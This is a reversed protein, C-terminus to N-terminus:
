LSGRESFSMSVYLTMTGYSIDGQWLRYAAFGYCAYGILQGIFGTLITMKSQFKNQLM